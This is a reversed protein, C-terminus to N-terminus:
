KKEGEVECEFSLTHNEPTTNASVMVSKNQVGTKGKSDFEVKIYGEGGAPIPDKTWDPTTCGCSPKVNSIKLPNKGTNKYKYSHAIKEGEKIKGFNHKMQDFEITTSSAQAKAVSDANTTNETTNSGDKNCASLLIFCCIIVIFSNLKMLKIFIPHM